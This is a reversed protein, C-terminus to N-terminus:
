SARRELAKEYVHILRQTMAPGSFQLVRERGNTRGRSRLIEKLRETFDDVEPKAVYCGPTNGIVERVDGVDTAVIPLNCAMAQKVLNPSGEQYSPFILADCASMLLALRDQPERCAVVLEVTPDQEHLRDAVQKALPFRKVAVNPNAAFLLYKKQPDLALRARADERPHPQFVDIDIECPIVYVDKKRNLKAAMAENQVIVADVSQALVQGAAVTLRSLFTRKGRANIEGMLDSGHYTVV